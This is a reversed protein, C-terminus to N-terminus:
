KTKKQDLEQLDLDVEDDEPKVERGFGLEVARVVAAKLEPLERPGVARALWDAEVIHCAEYRVARRSLEGQEALIAAAMCTDSLGERTDQLIRDVMKRADGFADRVSFLAEGNFYLYLEQGDV